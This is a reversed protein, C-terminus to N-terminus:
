SAERGKTVGSLEIDHKGPGSGFWDLGCGVGYKKPTWKLILRGGIGLDM